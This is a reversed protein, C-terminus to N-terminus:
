FQQYIFASYTSAVVQSLSYALVVALGAWEAVRAFRESLKPRIRRYLAQAPGCLAIAAILVTVTYPNIFTYVALGPDRATPVFLLRILYLGQRLSPIRFFMWGIFTVALTYVSGVAPVKDLYKGLFARELLIFAGHWLGWVVFNWSSGHWLGTLLFVVSLNLYTRFAGKRNGGLPIYVYDRFWGSLTIHWRRWFERISKAAYPLNFNEPLEFGFLRGLGLAMDTYGSFDFYIQMSYGLLVFWALSTGWMGSDLNLIADVAQGLCDALIVKKGLGTVFRRIGALVTESTVTRQRLQQEVSSYRVIPGMILKPFFSLYLGASIPNKAPKVSGRYVDTLYSISQFVLFSIGVPAFGDTVPLARGTLRTVTGALFNWYKCSLLPALEAAILLFFLLRRGPPQLKELAIAGLWAVLISGALFPLSEPSGWGYFFLSALLLFANKLQMGTNKAPLASLLSYGAIVVPLFVWLFPISQFSM